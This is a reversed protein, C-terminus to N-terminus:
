GWSVRSRKWDHTTLSHRLVYTDCRIPYEFLITTNIETM